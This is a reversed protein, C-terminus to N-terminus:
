CTLPVFFNEEVLVVSPYFDAKWQQVDRVQIPYAAVRSRVSACANKMAKSDVAQPIAVCRGQGDFRWGHYSCMLSGDSPEIRGESLPALRHPCEDAFARWENAADRWVVLRRGLLELSHPRRPDLDAVIAAAYWQREWAFDDLREAVETGDAFRPFDSPNRTSVANATNDDLTRFRHKAAASWCVDSVLRARSTAAFRRPGGAPASRRSDDRSSRLGQARCCHQSRRWQRAVNSGSWYQGGWGVHPRQTTDCPKSVYPM